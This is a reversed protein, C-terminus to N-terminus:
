FVKTVGYYAVIDDDDDTSSTLVAYSRLSSAGVCNDVKVHIDRLTIRAWTGKFSKKDVAVNTITGPRPEVEVQGTIPFSITGPAGIGSQGINTSSISVGGQGNLKVKDMEIGCGIQYGVELTGGAVSGTTNGFFTGGVLWDRSSLSTTLPAVPLQTEDKAAVTLTRGDPTKAVGPVESPVVGNDLPPASDAVEALPAAAPDAPPPPDASPDALAVPANGAAIVLSTVAVTALRHLM